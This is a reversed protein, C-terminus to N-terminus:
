LFRLQIFFTHRFVQVKGINKGYGNVYGEAKDSVLDRRCCVQYLLGSKGRGLCRRRSFGLANGPWGLSLTEGTHGPSDGPSGGLSPTTSADLVFTRAVEVLEEHHPPAAARSPEERIIFSWKRLSHGAAKRLFCIETTNAIKSM